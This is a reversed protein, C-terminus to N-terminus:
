KYTNPFACRDLQEIAYRLIDDELTSDALEELGDELYPVLENLINSTNIVAQCKKTNVLRTESVNAAWRDMDEQLKKIDDMPFQDRNITGALIDVIKQKILLVRKIRSLYTGM